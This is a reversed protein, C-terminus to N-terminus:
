RFRDPNLYYSPSHVYVAACIMSAEREAPTGAGEKDILEISRDQMERRPMDAIGMEENQGFFKKLLPYRELPGTM